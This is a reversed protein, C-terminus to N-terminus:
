TIGDARFPVFMLSWCVAMILGANREMPIEDDTKEESPLVPSAIQTEM